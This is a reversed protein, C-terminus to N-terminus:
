ASLAPRFCSFKSRFRRPCFPRSFCRGSTTAPSCTKSARASKPNFKRLAAQGGKRAIFYLFLSGITSGIIAAIVYVPTMAPNHHALAMVVVDPGGPLPILAADLLAVAFVGLAGMGILATQLSKM